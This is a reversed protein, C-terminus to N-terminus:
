TCGRILFLVLLVPIPIGILWLFIWGLKGALHNRATKAAVSFNPNTKMTFSMCDGHRCEIDAAFLPVALSESTQPTCIRASNDLPNCCSVSALNRM